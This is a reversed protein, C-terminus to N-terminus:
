RSACTSHQLTSTISIDLVGMSNRDLKPQDLNWTRARYITMITTFLGLEKTAGEEMDKFGWRSTRGGDGTPVNNGINYNHPESIGFGRGM